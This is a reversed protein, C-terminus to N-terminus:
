KGGRELLNGYALALCVFAYVILVLGIAVGFATYDLATLADPAYLGTMMSVSAALVFIVPNGRWYALTSLAILALVSILLEM